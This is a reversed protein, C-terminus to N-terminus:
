ESLPGVEPEPEDLSANPESAEVVAVEGAEGQEGEPTEDATGEPAPEKPEDPDPAIDTRPRPIPSPSWYGEATGAVPNRKGHPVQAVHFPTGGPQFVTLNVSDAHIKTVKAPMVQNDVHYFVDQGLIPVM